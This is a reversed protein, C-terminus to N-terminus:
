RGEGQETLTYSRPSWHNRIQWLLLLARFAEYNEKHAEETWQHFRCEGTRRDIGINYAQEVSPLHGLGIGYGALQWGNEPYPKYGDGKFELTKIDALVDLGGGDLLLDPTGGFTVNAFGREAAKVKYGHESLWHDIETCARFAIETSPLKGTLFYSEVAAHMAKGEDAAKDAQEGADDLVRSAFTELPENEIRPLTLSAELLGALKWATLGPKDMQRIISTVSPVLGYHKAHKISPKVVKGKAAESATLSPVLEVVEGKANYWRGAESAITM